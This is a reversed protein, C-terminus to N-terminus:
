TERRKSEEAAVAKNREFGRKLVTDLTFEYRKPMKGNEVWLKAELRSVIRFHKEGDPGEKYAYCGEHNGCGGRENWDVANGFSGGIAPVDDLKFM